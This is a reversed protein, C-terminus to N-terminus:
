RASPNARSLLFSRIRHTPWATREDIRRAAEVPDDDDPRVPAPPQPPLARPALPHCSM